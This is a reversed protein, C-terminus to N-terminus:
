FRFAIAWMFGLNSNSSSQGFGPIIMPQVGEQKTQFLIFRPQAQIDLYFATQFVQVRAGIPFEIWNANQNSSPLFTSADNGKYGRIPIANYTQKYVSTGLKAGIYFGNLPKNEEFFLMYYTGFKFFLGEALVHYQNEDFRNSEFGADAVLHRNKNLSFSAYGSLTKQNSFPMLGLHLVDVGVIIKQYKKDTKFWKKFFFGPKIKQIVSDAQPTKKQQAFLLVGLFSFFLLCIRITKM